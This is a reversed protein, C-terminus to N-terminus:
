SPQPVVRGKGDLTKDSWYRDWKDGLYRPEM